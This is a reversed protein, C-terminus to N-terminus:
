KLSGVGMWSTPESERGRCGVGTAVFNLDGIGNSVLQRSM